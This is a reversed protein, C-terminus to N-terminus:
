SPGAGAEACSGKGWTTAVSVFSAPAGAFWRRTVIPFTPAEKCGTVAFAGPHGAGVTTM